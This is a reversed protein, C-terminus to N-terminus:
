NLHAYNVNILKSTSSVLFNVLLVSSEMPFRNIKLVVWLKKPIIPLFILLIVLMILHIVSVVLLIYKLWILLVNNRKKILNWLRDVIKVFTLHLILFYRYLVVLVIWGMLILHVKLVHKFVMGQRHFLVLIIKLM